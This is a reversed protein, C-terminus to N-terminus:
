IHASNLVIKGGGVVGDGLVSLSMVDQPTSTAPIIIIIIVRCEQVRGGM